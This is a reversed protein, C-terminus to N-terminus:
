TSERNLRERQVAELEEIRKTQRAREVADHERHTECTAVKTKLDGVIEHLEDISENQKKVAEALKLKEAADQKLRGTIFKGGWVVAGTAIAGLTIVESGIGSGQVADSRSILTALLRM